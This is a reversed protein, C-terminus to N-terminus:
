HYGPGHLSGPAPVPPNIPPMAPLKTSSVLTSPLPVCAVPGEADVAHLILGTDSTKLQQM